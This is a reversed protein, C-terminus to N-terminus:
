IMGLHDKFEFGTVLRAHEFGALVEEVDHHGDAQGSRLYGGVSRSVCVVACRGSGSM